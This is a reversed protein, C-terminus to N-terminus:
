LNHRQKLKEIKEIIGREIDINYINALRMTLMLVDAIEESLNDNDQEKNRINKNNIQRAIEGLEEILHLVTKDADHNVNLKKDVLEIIENAKNQIDKTEM